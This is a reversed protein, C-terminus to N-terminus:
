PRQPVQRRAARQLDPASPAVHVTFVRHPVERPVTVSLATRRSLGQGDETRRRTGLEGGEEPPPV